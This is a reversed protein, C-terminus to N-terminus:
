AHSCTAHHTKCGGGARHGRHSGADGGGLLGELNSAAWNSDSALDESGLQREGSVALNDREVHGSSLSTPLVLTMWKRQNTGFHIFFHRILPFLRGQSSPNVSLISAALTDKQKKNNKFPPSEILQKTKFWNQTTNSRSCVATTKRCVTCARRSRYQQMYEVSDVERRLYDNKKSLHVGASLKPCKGRRDEQSGSSMCCM